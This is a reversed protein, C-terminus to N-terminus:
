SSVNCVCFIKISSVIEFRLSEIRLKLNLKPLSQLIPELSRLTLDTLEGNTHLKNLKIILENLNSDDSIKNIENLALYNSNNNSKFYSNNENQTQSIDTDSSFSTEVKFNNIVKNETVNNELM